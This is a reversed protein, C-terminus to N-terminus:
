SITGNLKEKTRDLNDVAFQLMSKAAEYEEIHEDSMWWIKDWHAWRLSASVVDQMAGLQSQLATASCAGPCPCGTPEAGTPEGLSARLAAVENTLREIKNM